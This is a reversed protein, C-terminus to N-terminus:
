VPPKLDSSVPVPVLWQRRGIHSSFLSRGKQSPFLPPSEICNFDATM